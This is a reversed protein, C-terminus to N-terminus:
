CEVELRDRALSVRPQLRPSTEATGSLRPRRDGGPAPYISAGGVSVGRPEMYISERLTPCAHLPSIARRAHRHLPCPSAGVQAARGRAKSRGPVPRACHAVPLAVYHDRGLPKWARQWYRHQGPPVSREGCACPGLKRIAGYNSVFPLWPASCASM